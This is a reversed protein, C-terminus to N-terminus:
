NNRLSNTRQLDGSYHGIIHNMGDKFSTEDIEIMNKAESFVRAKEQQYNELDVSSDMRMNALYVMNQLLKVNTEALTLNKRYLGAKDIGVSDKLEQETFEILERIEVQIATSFDHLEKASEGAKALIEKEFGVASKVFANGLFFEKRDKALKRERSKVEAELHHMGEFDIDSYKKKHAIDNKLLEIVAKDKEIKKLVAIEQKITTKALLSVHKGFKEMESEFKGFNKEIRQMIQQIPM